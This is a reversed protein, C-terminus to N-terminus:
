SSTTEFDVGLFEKYTKLFGKIAKQMLIISTREQQPYINGASSFHISAETLPDYCIYFDINEYKQVDFQKM